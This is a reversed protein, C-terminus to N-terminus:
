EVDPDWATSGRPGVAAMRALLREHLTATKATRCGDREAMVPALASRAAEIDPRGARAQDML